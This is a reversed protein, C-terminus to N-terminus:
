AHYATALTGLFNSILKGNPPSTADLDGCHEMPLAQEGERLLKNAAVPQVKPGLM